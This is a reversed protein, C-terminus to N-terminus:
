PMKSVNKTSIEVLFLWFHRYKPLLCIPMKQSNKTSIEVFFAEFHGLVDRICGFVSGTHEAVRVEDLIITTQTSVEDFKNNKGFEEFIELFLCLDPHVPPNQITEM